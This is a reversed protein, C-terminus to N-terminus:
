PLESRGRLRGGPVPRCGQQGVCLRRLLRGRAGPYGSVEGNHWYDAQVFIPEGFLGEARRAKAALTLAADFDRLNRNTEGLLKLLATDMPNQKLLAALFTKYKRQWDETATLTPDLQQATAYCTATNQSDNAAFLLDGMRVYVAAVEGAVPSIDPAEGPPTNQSIAIVLETVKQQCADITKLTKTDM